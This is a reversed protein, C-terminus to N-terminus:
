QAVPTSVVVQALKGAENKLSENINPNKELAVKIMEQGRALDGEKGYILGARCLLTPNQSKTKLAIDIYKKAYNFDGKQYYVWALTENVDINDPRRNYEMMAHDLAKDIDNIKLYAYALERDAYHGINQDKIGSQADKTLLDIVEKASAVSKEKQGDLSYLDTLEDKMAYDNVLSDAKAFYNIATKYEGSGRAIRGLGALGYAYDSREQLSIAYQMKANGLDGINEYLQGLHVRAWETGEDGQPGASVALKMAEIAGPYDGYIERLYSVRSYSRIDPRISMMKDSNMVAADYKGLEVNADVLMGYVFANTPNMKRIKEAMALGDAFHHESLFITGKFVNAEFNTSDKKLVANALKMVAPDYYVHNGTIRGEQIYLSALELKLKINEPDTKIQGLLADAKVKTTKYEESGGQAGTREKLPPIVEEQKENRLIIFAISTGLLIFLVAYIISKKM